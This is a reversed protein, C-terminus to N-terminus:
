YVICFIKELSILNLSIKTRKREIIIIMMMMCFVLNGLDQSFSWWWWCWWGGVIVVVFVAPFFDCSQNKNDNNNYGIAVTSLSLFFVLIVIVFREFCSYCCCYYQCNFSKVPVRYCESFFISDEDDMVDNNNSFFVNVNNWIFKNQFQKKNCELKTQIYLKDIFGHIKKNIQWSIFTEYEILNHIIKRKGCQLITLYYIQSTTLFSDLFQRSRYSLVFVLNTLGATLITM